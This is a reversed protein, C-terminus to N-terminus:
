NNLNKTYESPNVGYQKKFCKSFYSQDLFGVKYGIQTVSDAKKEILQAARKIRISSIFETTSLGTLAKIKRHLQTRSIHMHNTLSEVKLESNGINEQIYAALQHLFQEDQNEIIVESPDIVIKKRYIEKLKERNIILNNIRVNLEEVSFPKQIYDDAGVKLGQIKSKQDAKATLMLVPIHSTKTDTKISKCLEQGNMKPMMIDTVIITPIHQIALKLGEYGNAAELINFTGTLSTKIYNRLDDNDEVILITNDDTSKDSSDKQISDKTEIITQLNEKNKSEVCIDDEHFLSRDVPLSVIFTTGQDVESKVEIKGNYIHILEKALALGIGTGEQERTESSDIQYFREFLYPLKDKPIGIGTDKITIQLYNGKFSSLIEISQDKPTFKFANSILNNIIKELQDKDFWTEKHTSAINFQYNINKIVALSEFSGILTKIFSVIDGKSVKLNIEGSELKSIELLQNILEQLRKANRHMVLHDQDNPHSKLKKELPGLILTLPTRFEHSINAFFRSKAQDLNELKENKLALEETRNAITIELLENKKVIQKTRWKVIGWIFIGLLLVYTSYAWWTQYWPPLITFTFTAEEGIVQEHNKAIVHFTYTGPSLNEYEKQNDYIFYPQFGKEYGELYFKFKTNKVEYYTPAGFKFKISRTSDPLKHIKQKQFLHTITSDNDVIAQSIYTKFKAAPNSEKDKNIRYLDSDMFWIVSDKDFFFNIPYAQAKIKSFVKKEIFIKKSNEDYKGQLILHPMFGTLVYIDNDQAAIDFLHYQLGELTSDFFDYDLAEAPIFKNEDHNFEMLEEYGLFFLRKKFNFMKRQATTKDLSPMFYKKAFASDIIPQQKEDYRIDIKIFGPNSNAIWLDNSNGEVISSTIANDIYKEESLNWTGNKNKSLIRLGNETGVYLWNGYKSVSLKTAIFLDESLTILRNQDIKFVGKDTAALLNDDIIKLNFIKIDSSSIRKLKKSIAYTTSDQRTVFLGKTTGFYLKNNFRKIDHVFEWDLKEIDFFTINSAIEIRSIGKPHSVWLANSQDVFMSSIKDSPLGNQSNLFQIIEGDANCHLIGKDKISIVFEENPLKLVSNNTKTNIKYGSPLSFMKKVQEEKYSYIINEKTSFILRDSTDSIIDLPEDKLFLNNFHIQRITNNELVALDNGELILHITNNHYFSKKIKKESPLISFTNNSLIFIHKDSIFYKKDNHIFCNIMQHIPRLRKPIKFSLDKQYPWNTGDIEFTGLSNPTIFYLKGNKDQIMKKISFKNPAYFVNWNVGDFHMASFDSNFFMFGREDQFISEFSVKRSNYERPEFNQIFPIGLENPNTKKQSYVSFFILFFLLLSYTRLLLSRNFFSIFKIM